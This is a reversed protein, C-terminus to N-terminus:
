FPAKATPRGSPTPSRRAHPLRPASPSPGRGSQSPSRRSTRGRGFLRRLCAPYLILARAPARPAGTIPIRDSNDAPEPDPIEAYVMLALVCMHAPLFRVQPIVPHLCRSGTSPKSGHSRHDRVARPCDLLCM